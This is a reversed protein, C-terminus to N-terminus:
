RKSFRTALYSLPHQIELLAAMPKTQTASGIDSQYSWRWHPPLVLLTGPRVIIDIFQIEGVLPTTAKTWTSPVTNKWETPCFAYMKKHLLSVKITGETPMLISLFATTQQLGQDGILASTQLSLFPAYWLSQLIPQIQHEAWVQIGSEQALLNATASPMTPLLAMTNASSLPFPQFGPYILPIGQLRMNATIDQNTWFNPVQFGRVVIPSLESILPLIKDLEGKEVQLIKYEPNTQKYFCVGIIFITAIIIILELLM